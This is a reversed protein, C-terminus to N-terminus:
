MSGLRPPGRRVQHMQHRASAGAWKVLKAEKRASQQAPSYRARVPRSAGARGM